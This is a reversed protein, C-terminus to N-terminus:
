FMTFRCILEEDNWMSNSNGPINKYLEIMYTVTDSASVRPPIGGEFLFEADSFSEDIANFNWNGRELNKIYGPYTFSQIYIEQIMGLNITIKTRYRSDHYSTCGANINGDLPLEYTLCGSHKSYINDNAWVSLGDLVLQALPEIFDIPACNRELEKLTSNM